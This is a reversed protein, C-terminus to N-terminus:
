GALYDVMTAAKPAASSEASLGVTQMEWLAAKPAAWYVASHVVMSGASNDATMAAMQDVMQDVMLGVM